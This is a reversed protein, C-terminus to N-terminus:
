VNIPIEYRQGWGTEKKHIWIILKEPKDNTYITIYDRSIRESVIKDLKERDFDKRGLEDGNKNHVGVFWFM